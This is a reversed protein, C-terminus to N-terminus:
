DIAVHEERPALQEQSQGLHRRVLEALTIGDLVHEVARNVDIWVGRTICGPSRECFIPDNVCGVLAIPGEIARWIDGVRIKEPDKALTHGGGIGRRSYVLGANKLSSFITDLYKRSIGQNEAITQMMVPKEGQHLALELM